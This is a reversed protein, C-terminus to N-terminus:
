PKNGRIIILGGLTILFPLFGLIEPVGQTIEASWSLTNNTSAKNQQTSFAFYQNFSSGAISLFYSTPSEGWSYVLNNFEFSHNQNPFEITISPNDNYNFGIDFSEGLPINDFIGEAYQTRERNFDSFLSIDSLWPTDIKAIGTIGIKGGQNSEGMLPTAFVVVISLISKILNM